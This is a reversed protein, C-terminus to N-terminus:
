RGMTSGNKVGIAVEGRLGEPLKPDGKPYKGGAVPLALRAEDGREVFSSSSVTERGVCDRVVEDLLTLVTPDLM